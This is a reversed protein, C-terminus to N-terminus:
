INDVQSKTQGQLVDNASFMKTNKTNIEGKYMHIIFIHM